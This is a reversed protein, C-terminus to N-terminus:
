RNIEKGTKPIMTPWSFGVEGSVLTVPTGSGIQRLTAENLEAERKLTIKDIGVHGPFANEVWYVFSYVDIDDLADLKIEVPSSMIAQGAQDTKESTEQEAAGITYQASLVHSQTQIAEITRRAVYRDQEGFFDSKKLTEFVDKQEEIQQQETQMRLIESRKQSIEARVTRLERDTKEKQPLVFLYVSAALTVNLAVMAAIFAVRRMGLVEIM